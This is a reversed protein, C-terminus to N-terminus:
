SGLHLYSRSNWLALFFFFIQDFDFDNECFHKIKYSLYNSVFAFYLTLQVKIFTFLFTISLKHERMIIWM